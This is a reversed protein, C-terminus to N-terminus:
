SDSLLLDFLADVDMRIDLIVLGIAEGIEVMQQKWDSFWHSVFPLEVQHVDKLWLNSEDTKILYQVYKHWKILKNSGLIEPPVESKFSIWSFRVHLCALIGWFNQKSSFDGFTRL